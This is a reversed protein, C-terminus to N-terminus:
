YLLNSLEKFIFVGRPLPIGLLYGFALTAVLTLGTSIAVARVIKRQGMAFIFVSLFVISAFFLGLYPIAFVYFALLVGVSILKVPTMAADHTAGPYSSQPQGEPVASQQTQKSRWVSVCNIATLILLMYLLTKPWFAPTIKGAFRSPIEIKFSQWFFILTVLLMVINAIFNFM